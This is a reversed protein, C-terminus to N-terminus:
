APLPAAAAARWTRRLNTIGIGAWLGALALALLGLTGPEPVDAPGQEDIFVNDIGFGVGSEATFWFAKIHKFQAGLVIETGPFGWNEVPLLMSFSSTAGDQSAHIYIRESGSADGYFNASNTTLLFRNLDFASVDGKYGLIAPTGPAGDDRWDSHLVDNGVRYYDGAYGESALTYFRFGNEEYNAVNSFVFENNTMGAWGDNLSVTGGTFTVLAAHAPSACALLLMTAAVCATLAHKTM